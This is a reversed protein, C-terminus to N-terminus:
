PRRDVGPGAPGTCLAAQVNRGRPNRTHAGVDEKRPGSLLGSVVPCSPSMWMGRRTSRDATPSLCASAEGNETRAGPVGGM